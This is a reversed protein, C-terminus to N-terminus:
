IKYLIIYIQLFENVFIVLFNPTFFSFFLFSGDTGYEDGGHLLSVVIRACM